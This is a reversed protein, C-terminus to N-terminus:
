KTGNTLNDLLSQAEANQRIGKDGAIEYMLECMYTPQELFKPLSTNFVQGINREAFKRMWQHLRGNTVMDESWHMRVLALPDLGQEGNHNFIHHTSEYSDRILIQAQASKIKPAVNVLHNFGFNVEDVNSGFHPDM